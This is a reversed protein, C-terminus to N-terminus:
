KANKSRAHICKYTQKFFPVFFLDSLLAIGLVSTVPYLYSVIPGFGLFSIVLPVVVSLSYVMLRSKFLGRLSQSVSYVLSFLTTVCGFLIVVQMVTKTGGAFLALLPMDEAFVTNNELLVINALLLIVCLVLASFFSVRAKQKRTLGSGVHAIVLGSNSCNLFVYMISYFIGVYSFSYVGAELQGKVLLKGVCVILLVVMLPVLLLNLKELSGIGNRIIYYCCALIIFLVLCSFAIGTFSVLDISGAFMASSLTLCILINILNSFKSVKLREIAGQGHTLFFYFLAWFLFFALVICPFSMLGFRSFFVVIEKGSLFGSGIVTGVTVLFTFLEKKM